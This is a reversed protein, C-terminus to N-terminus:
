QKEIEKARKVGSGGEEREAANRSENLQLLLVFHNAFRKEGKERRLSDEFVKM